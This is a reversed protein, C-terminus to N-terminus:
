GPVPLRTHALSRQTAWLFGYLLHFIALRPPLYAFDRSALSAHLRIRTHILKPRQM